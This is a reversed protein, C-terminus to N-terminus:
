KSETERPEAIPCEAMGYNLEGHLKMGVAMCPLCNNEWKCGRCPERREEEVSRLKALFPSDNWYDMIHDYEEEIELHRCPTLKGDVTVSIGDRGAGCGRFVGYNLSGFFSRKVLTCMQSFCVEPGVAVDGRYQRIQEAVACIQEKTPYSSLQHSSDPKFVMVVLRSAGYREALRIMEPFDDANCEHMVWNIVTKSYNMAQLLELTNIALEYGDRTKENIERTSGNLSVFIRSVGADIFENLRRETVYAGSLAINSKLGLRSCERILETLHPYCLTEGGSLNVESVGADAADRIWYLATDLPMERGNNLSVYCQPCHLPCRTTLELNMQIPKDLIRELM